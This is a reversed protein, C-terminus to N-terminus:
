LLGKNKLSQELQRFAELKSIPRKISKDHLCQAPKTIENIETFKVEFKDGVSIPINNYWIIKNQKDYEWGGVYFNGKNDVNGIMILILGDEVTIYSIKGNYNLEFGKM